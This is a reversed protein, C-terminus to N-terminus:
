CGMLRIVLIVRPFADDRQRYRLRDAGSGTMVFVSIISEGSNDVDVFRRSTRGRRLYDVFPNTGLGRTLLTARARGDREAAPLELEGQWEEATALAHIQWAEQSMMQKPQITM